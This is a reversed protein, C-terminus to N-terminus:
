SLIADKLWKLLGTYAPLDNRKELRNRRTIAEVQHDISLGSLIYNHTLEAWEMSIQKAKELTKPEYGRSICIKLGGRDSPLRHSIHSSADRNGYGPQDLIDIEFHNGVEVYRFTYYASGDKTRYVGPTYSPASLAGEGIQEYHSHLTGNEIAEGGRLVGSHVDNTCSFVSPNNEMIQAKGQDRGSVKGAKKFLINM